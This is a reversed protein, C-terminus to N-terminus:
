ARDEEVDQVRPYQDQDAEESTEPNIPAQEEDVIAEPDPDSVDYDEASDRSAIPEDGTRANPGAAGEQVNRDTPHGAVADGPTVQGATKRSAVESLQGENEEAEDVM